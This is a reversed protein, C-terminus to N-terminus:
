ACPLDLHVSRGSNGCVSEPIRADFGVKRDHCDVAVPVLAGITARELLIM